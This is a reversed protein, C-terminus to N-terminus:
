FLARLNIGGSHIISTNESKRGEYHFELQLFNNLKKHWLITWTYNKGPQLGQMMEYAITNQVEGTYNIQIFKIDTQINGITKYIYGFHIGSTYSTSKQEGITNTKDEVSLNIGTQIIESISYTGRLDVKKEQILYNNQPFFSYLYENKATEWTNELLLNHQNKYFLISHKETNRDITGNFQLNKSDSRQYIYYTKFKWRNIHIGYKNRLSYTHAINMSDSINIQLPKSQTNIKRQWQIFLDESFSSLIKKIGRNDKKWLNRPNINIHHSLTQAYIPKYKQGPLTVRIYNAEDKFRSQVFENLEKIKNKNYDKWAYLGTGDPVQIYQFDQFPINGTKHELLLSLKISNRLLSLYQKSRLHFTERINTLNVKQTEQEQLPLYYLATLNWGFTKSTYPTGKLRITNTTQIYKWQDEEPRFEERHTYLLELDTTSKYKLHLFASSQHNRFSNQTYIRSTDPRTHNYEGQLKIGPTLLGFTKQFLSQYQLFQIKNKNEKARLFSIQIQQTYKGKQLTNTLTQKYGQYTNRKLGNTYLELNGFQKNNYKLSIHLQHEEIPPTNYSTGYNRWFEPPHIPEISHFEPHIYQYGTQLTLQQASDQIFNNKIGIKAAFGINDHDDKPSFTNKDHLSGAAEFNIQLGQRISINGGATLIQEKQPATLLREPSYNGTKQGNEPPTWRFIRGNVSSETQIYNGQNEGVRTFQVPYTDTKKQKSYVFIGKYIHGQVTTDIKKYYITNNETQDSPLIYATKAQQLSDGIQHLLEKDSNSLTQMATQNKADHESFFQVFYKSQQKQFNQRTHLTFRPYSRDAYEFEAIIRSDARIIHSVTFTLEGLNYDITYDKDIGRQLLEGDIYIRESGSLVIIYPENEAGTLKYPGQNGSNPLIYQKRYKGKSVAGCIESSLAFNNRTKYNVTGKIGRLKKNYKIFTSSDPKNQFDGAIVESHPSQLQIYVRDFEQLNQSNGEPQLPLNSDTMVAQLEISDTLQGSLQLHFDSHTGANQNNGLTIGRAFSGSKHLHSNGWNSRPSNEEEERTYLSINQETNRIITDSKHAIKQKWSFPYRRYKVTLSDNQIQKSRIILLSEPPKLTYFSTDVPTNGSYIRFSEPIISLTDLHLTDSTIYIKKVIRNDPLQAKATFSLTLLLLILYKFRM